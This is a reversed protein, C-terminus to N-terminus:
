SSLRGRVREYAFAALLLITGLGMFGLIRLGPGLMALDITLIKGVAFTLGAWSLMRWTRRRRRIGVVIGFLAALTIITSMGWLSFSLLDYYHPIVMQFVSTAIMQISIM